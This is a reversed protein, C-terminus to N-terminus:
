LYSKEWSHSKLLHCLGISHTAENLNVWIKSQTIRPIFQGSCMLLCDLDLKTIGINPDKHLLMQDMVNRGSSFM